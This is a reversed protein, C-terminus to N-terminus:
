VGRQFGAHGFCLWLTTADFYAALPGELEVQLVGNKRRDAKRVTAGLLSFFDMTFRRLSPAASLEGAAEAATEM